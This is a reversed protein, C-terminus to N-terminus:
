GTISWLPWTVATTKAEISRAPSSVNMLSMSRGAPETSAVASARPAMMARRGSGSRQNPVRRVPGSACAMRLGSAVAAMRMVPSSPM